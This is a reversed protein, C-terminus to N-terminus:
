LHFSNWTHVVGFVFGIPLILDIMLLDLLLLGSLLMPRFLLTLLGVHEMLVPIKRGVLM